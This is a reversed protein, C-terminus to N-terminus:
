ILFTPAPPAPPPTPTTSFPNRPPLLPGAPGPVRAAGGAAFGAVLSFGTEASTAQVVADGSSKVVANSDITATTTKTLVNADVGAGVGTGGGAGITGALDVILSSDDAAVQVGDPRTITGVQAGLGIAGHATGVIGSSAIAVAVGVNGGGAGSVVDDSVTEKANATVIVAGTADVTPADRIGAKITDTLVGVAAAGGVGNSGGIAIVGAVNILLTADAATVSVDGANAKITANAGISAETDLLQVLPTAVGAIANSGAAAGAVGVSFLKEATQASVSVSGADVTTAAGSNSDITATATNNVTTSIAVGGIGNNGGVAIGGALNLSSISNTAAVNVAGSSKLSSGAGAQASVSAQSYVVGLIGAIGNADAAAASVEFLGIEHQAGAAVGVSASQWIWRNSGM